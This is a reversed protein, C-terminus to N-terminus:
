ARCCWILVYTCERIAFLEPSVHLRASLPARLALCPWVHHAEDLDPGNPPPDELYKGREEPSM